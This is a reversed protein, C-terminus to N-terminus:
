NEELSFSNGLNYGRPSLPDHDFCSLFCLRVDEERHRVAVILM